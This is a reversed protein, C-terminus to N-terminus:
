FSNLTAKGGLFMGICVSDSGFIGGFICNTLNLGNIEDRYMCERTREREM